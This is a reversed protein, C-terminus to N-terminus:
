MGLPIALSTLILLYLALMTMAAAVSWYFFVQGTEILKKM